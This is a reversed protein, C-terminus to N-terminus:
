VGVIHFVISLLILPTLFFISIVVIVVFISTFVALGKLLEKM